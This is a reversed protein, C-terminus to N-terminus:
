VRSNEALTSLVALSLKARETLSDLRIFERESHLEGGRPGMSDINPLGAEALRNGDSAGGSPGHTLNLGISAGAHIIAYLLIKTKADLVKPMSSFGGTIRIAFGERTAVTSHVVKIAEEIRGVDEPVDARTNIVLTALDPVVNAATGGKMTGVNITAGSLQANAEHLKVAMESALVIANRGNAFDRGAHAARGRVVITYNGSGRRRSVLSGDPMAPEFLLGVDNRKAAADLLANSGPSGIEEDSNIIVEWGIRQAIPMQEFAELAALLIVIGGKADVVGPGNLTNADVDRVHQFPSDSPYVTDAHINLLVRVKAEARKTAVLCSALPRTTEIGLEDVITATGSPVREVHDALKALRDQVRDLVREVGAVNYTHSNIECLSILEDRMASAQADIWCLHPGLDKM